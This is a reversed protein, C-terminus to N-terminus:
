VCVLYRIGKTSLGIPGLFRVAESRDVLPLPREIYLIMLEDSSYSKVPRRIESIAPCQHPPSIM